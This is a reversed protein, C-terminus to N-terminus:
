SIISVNLAPITKAPVSIFGTPFLSYWQAKHIWCCRVKQLLYM